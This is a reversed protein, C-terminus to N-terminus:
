DKGEKMRWGRGFQDSLNRLLRRFFGIQNRHGFDRLANSLPLL